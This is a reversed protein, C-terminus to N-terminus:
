DEEEAEDEFGLDDLDDDEDLDEDFDEDDFDEEFDEEDFDDEFEEAFEDDDEDDFALEDFDEDADEDGSAVIGGKKKAEKAKPADPSVFYAGFETADPEAGEATDIGAETLLQQVAEEAAQRTPEIHLRSNLQTIQLMKNVHDNITCIMFVGDNQECLRNGFLMASLGSSDVFKTAGLDLIIANIGENTLVMFEGKLTPAIRADLKEELLTLVAHQEGKELKFNM